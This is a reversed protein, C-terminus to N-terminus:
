LNSINFLREWSDTDRVTGNWNQEMWYGGSGPGDIDWEVVQSAEISGAVTADGDGEEYAKELDKWVQPMSDVGMVGGQGLVSVEEWEQRTGHLKSSADPNYRLQKIEDQMGWVVEDETLYAKAPIRLYYSTTTLVIITGLLFLSLLILFAIIIKRWRSTTTTKNTHHRSNRIPSVYSM